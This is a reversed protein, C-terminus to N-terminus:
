LNLYDENTEKGSLYVGINHILLDKKIYFEIDSDRCIRVSEFIFKAWDIKKDIGKYNNIKGIRVHDIFGAVLELLELSQDPIVVPEFSAWTMVGAEAFQRLGIIRTESTPAGSEWEHSDPAKSFTLTAGVKIRDGFQKILEIDRFAKTPNKTLIAVKHEYKNLITLVENTEGNESGCYPDGTFSLLIQKNCGKMKRASIELKSFDLPTIVTEHKYEANFRGMIKPVYCYKCGHDCGKFYNLALPSYERARGAPEYINM